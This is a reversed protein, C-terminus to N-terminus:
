SIKKLFGKNNINFMIRNFFMYNIFAIGITIMIQSFFYWFGFIDVFLYMMLTNLGLMCLNYLFFFSFQLPINDKSYNKFTFFKHLLYSVVIGSCFSIISSTLYWINLKQVLFYLVIFNSLSAIIGSFIYRLIKYNKIM